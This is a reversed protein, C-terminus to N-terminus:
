RGDVKGVCVQQNPSLLISLVFAFSAAKKSLSSSSVENKTRRVSNNGRQYGDSM